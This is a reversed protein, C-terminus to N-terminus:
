NLLSFLYWTLWGLGIGLSSTLSLITFIEGVSFFESKLRESTLTIVGAGAFASVGAFAGEFAVTFTLTRALTFADAFARAFAVVFAFTVAFAFSKVLAFPKAMTFAGASAESFIGAWLLLWVNFNIEIAGLIFSVIAYITALGILLFWPKNGKKNNKNKDISIKPTAILMKLWKDM